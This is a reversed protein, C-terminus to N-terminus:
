FAESIGAYIAVQGGRAIGLDVRLNLKDEPIAAFRGGIGGVYKFESLQFGDLDSAVDGAGAFVTMGLRWFLPRRYEAQAYVMQRDRYLSANSIGRLRADGGLQPLKYFPAEDGGTFSGLLQFALINDENKVSIYKRLDVLYSSFNFDGVFNFLSRVTLFYGKNPYITNNRSDFRFAPGLGLLTGGNIGVPVDGALMGGDVIDTISNHQFDLAAGLFAKESLPKLFRGEVQFFTNTYQESIDPDNSNGLGFYSDPFNFFRVSGNLANGGAPFLNLNVASIIQNKLTYLFFPSITSERVFDSQGSQKNPLVWIAAAGFQM